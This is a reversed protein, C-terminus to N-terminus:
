MYKKLLEFATSFTKQRESFKYPILTNVPFYEQLLRFMFDNELDNKIEIDYEIVTPFISIDFDLNNKTFYNNQSIRYCNHFEEIILEKYKKKEFLNCINRYAEKEIYMCKFKGTIGPGLVKGNLADDYYERSMRNTKIEEFLIPNSTKVITIDMKTQNIKTCLVNVSKIGAHYLFAWYGFTYGDKAFLIRHMMGGGPKYSFGKRVYKNINKEMDFTLLQAIAYNYCDKILKEECPIELLETRSLNVPLIGERDEIRIQPIPFHFGYKEHNRIYPSHPIIIGNCIVDNIRWSHKESYTWLYNDYENQELKYLISDNNKPSRTIVEEGNIMYKVEPSIDEYWNYWKISFIHNNDLENIISESIDISIITGIETNIRKIEINDQDLQINFEWGLDDDIFKTKVNAKYGLLFTALVGIGFKGNRSIKSKGNLEKFNKLWYESRRYSAGTILYYNVITDILMGSGNDTIEFKNNKTDLNIIIKGSYSSGRDSEISMRERCADVANQLLERVGFSPDNGYLPQILLKLIEANVDFFASNTYFKTKFEDIIENKLLNSDVRRINLGMISNNGYQEGLIAWCLDLENQVDKLWTTTKIFQNVNFPQAHISVREANNEWVFDEYKICQNWSFEERSIDSSKKSMADINSSAREEGADLYDALRLLIMLYFVAINKPRNIISYKKQLYKETDRLKMGHSRAILGIIDRINEDIKTDKLLDVSIYGDFGDIIIQHALRSHNQRLFEGYVLIDRKKLEFAELPLQTIADTSGFIKLLQKDSYRRIEYTYIEWTKEWTENDLMYIKNKKNTGYILKHMADFSIFMGIDHLIAAIIFIGLERASLINLTDDPILYNSIEILREEHIVGHNTYEPFFYPTTSLYDQTNKIVNNVNASWLEDEHLKNIFRKPIKIHPM